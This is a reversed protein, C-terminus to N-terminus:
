TEKLTKYKTEHKMSPPPFVAQALHKAIPFSYDVSSLYNDQLGQRWLLLHSRGARGRWLIVDRRERGQPVLM